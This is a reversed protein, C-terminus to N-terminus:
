EPRLFDELTFGQGLANNIIEAHDVDWASLAGLACSMLFVVASPSLDGADRARRVMEGPDLQPRSDGQLWHNILVGQHSHTNECALVDDPTVLITYGDHDSTELCLLENINRGPGFTRHFEQLTLDGRLTARLAPQPETGTGLGMTSPTVPETPTLLISYRQETTM